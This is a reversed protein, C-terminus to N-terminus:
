GTRPPSMERQGVLRLVPGGPPLAGGAFAGDGAAKVLENVAADLDQV